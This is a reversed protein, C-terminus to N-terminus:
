EHQNSYSCERLELKQIIRKMKYPLPEKLYWTQTIETADNEHNPKKIVITNMTDIKLGAKRVTNVLLLHAMHVDHPAEKKLRETLAPSFNFCKLEISGSRIPLYITPSSFNIGDSDITYVTKLLAYM